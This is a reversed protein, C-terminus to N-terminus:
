SKNLKLQLKYCHWATTCCAAASRSVTGLGAFARKCEDEENQISYIIYGLQLVVAANSRSVAGVGTLARACDAENRPEFAKRGSRYVVIGLQLIM